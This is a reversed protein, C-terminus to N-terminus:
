DPIGSKNSKAINAEASLIQLNTEVHLGCVDLGNLPIVHDVHHAIGTEQSIRQAERYIRRIETKNAWAPTAQQKRARRWAWEAAADSPNRSKWLKKHYSRVEAPLSKIYKLKRARESELNRAHWDRRMLNLKEANEKAWRERDIKRCETCRGKQVTKPALHGRKCPIGTFYLKSGVNMADSRSKPLDSNEM